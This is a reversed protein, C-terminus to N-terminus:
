GRRPRAVPRRREPATVGKLLNRLEIALRREHPPLKRVFKAKQLAEELRQVAAPVELELQELVYLVDSDEFPEYASFDRYNFIDTDAGFYKSSVYANGARYPERFTEAFKAAVPMRRQKSRDVRAIEGLAPRLRWEDQDHATIVRNLLRKTLTLLYSLSVNSERDPEVFDDRWEVGLLNLFDKVVDGDVFHARDYLRARLHESGFVNSWKDLFEGYDPTWSTAYKEFPRTVIRTQVAQAYASVAYELQERIYVVVTTEGPPFLGALENPDLRQFAESSVITNPAERLTRRFAEFDADGFAKLYRRTYHRRGLAAVVDHHAISQALPPYHFGQEALLARNLSFFRQIATTGSKNRGIHLYIM